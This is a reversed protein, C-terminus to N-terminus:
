LQELSCILQQYMAAGFDLVLNPVYIVLGVSHAASPLLQNPVALRGRVERVRVHFVHHLVM